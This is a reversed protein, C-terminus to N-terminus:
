EGTKKSVKWKVERSRATFDLVNARTKQFRSIGIEPEPDSEAM